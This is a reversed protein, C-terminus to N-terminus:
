APRKSWTTTISTGSSSCIRRSVVVRSMSSSSARDRIAACAPRCCRSATASMTITETGVVTWSTGNTSRSATFLDGFREIKVWYPIQPIPYGQAEWNSGGYMETWGDLYTEVKTGPTLAVWAKAAPEANLDSRIMVGAKANVHTNQVSTVRTVITCDGSVQKYVFRCAEAGHTWIDTGAGNVTWVGNSYSTSGAAISGIDLSTM